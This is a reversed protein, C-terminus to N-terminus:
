YGRINNQRREDVLNGKKDVVALRVRPYPRTPSTVHKVSPAHEGGSPGSKSAIGPETSGEGEVEAPLEGLVVLPEDELPPRVVEEPAVDDEDPRLLSPGFVDAAGLGGAGCFNTPLM